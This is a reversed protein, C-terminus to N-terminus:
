FHTQSHAHSMDLVQQPTPWTFSTSALTSTMMLYGVGVVLFLEHPKQSHSAILNQLFKALMQLGKVLRRLFLLTKSHIPLAKSVMLLRSMDAGTNAVQNRCAM